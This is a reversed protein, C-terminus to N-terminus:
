HLLAQPNASPDRLHGAFPGNVSRLSHTQIEQKQQTNRVVGVLGPVPCSSLFLPQRFLSGSYRSVQPTRDVARSEQAAVPFEPEASVPSEPVVLAEQQPPHSGEVASAEQQGRHSEASAGQQGRHSEEVASAEQQRRHSEEV